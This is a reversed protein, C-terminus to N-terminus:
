HDNFDRPERMQALRDPFDEALEWDALRELHDQRVTRRLSERVTATPGKTGLIRSAEDLLQPEVILSTRKAMVYIYPM